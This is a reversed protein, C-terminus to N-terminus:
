SIFKLLALLSLLLALISLWFAINSRKNGTTFTSASFASLYNNRDPLLRGTCVAVAIALGNTHSISIKFGTHFPLGKETHDIFIQNFPTGVYSDNSKVIAEKAAFIGAFSQLPDPQLICYSIEASTFNMAYFSDERYDDAVHFSSVNEVDIGIGAFDEIVGSELVANMPVAPEGTVAPLEKANIKAMLQGYYQIGSYNDVVFGEAALAAYMRHLLISNGINNRGIGTADTISGPTCKIYQAIIQKIKESM